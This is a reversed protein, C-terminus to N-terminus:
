LQQPSESRVEDIVDRLIVAAAMQDKVGKTQRKKKKVGTAIMISRAEKTSFAEDAEYVPLSTHLRLETVFREITEIIPTVRDDHHRPVGVIVVETRDASFCAVLKQLVDPTNEIVPRTSVVIHMEDCVAVGIRRLGFDLACLRKGVLFSRELKTM